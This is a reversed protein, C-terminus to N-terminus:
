AEAAIQVGSGTQFQVMLKSKSGNPLLYIRAMNAAPNGPDAARELFELYNATSGTLRFHNAYMDSFPNSVSGVHGGGSSRDISDVDVIDNDNMDLDGTMANGGSHQLYETHLNGSSAQAHALTITSNAGGDTLTMASGATLVREASLGGTASQVIYTLDTAAGSSGANAVWSLVGSGNTQMVYTNSGDAAPLTYTVSAGDAIASPAQFGVYEDGSGTERLRISSATVHGAIYLQWTTHDGVDALFKSNNSGDTSMQLEYVASLYLQVNPTLVAGTQGLVVKGGQNSFLTVDTYSGGEMVFKGGASADIKIGNKDMVVAGDGATVRGASTMTEVQLPQQNRSTIAYDVGPRWGTWVLNPTWEVDVGGLSIGLDYRENEPQYTRLLKSVIGTYTKGSRADQVQVVDWVEQGCNMPVVDRGTTVNRKLRKIARQARVTAESADAINLDVVVEEFTGIAAASTGDTDSGVAPTSGGPAQNAYTIKNPIIPGESVFGSFFAHDGDYTYDVSSVSDDKHFVHFGDKEPRVVLLSEATVDRIIQITSMGYDANYEPTDDDGQGSTTTDLSMSIDRGVVIKDAKPATTYTDGGTFLLRIYYKSSYLAWDTPLDFTITRIGAIRLHGTNDVVNHSTHLSAWADTSLDRWYDVQITYNGVGATTIDISITDFKSSHGIEFRDGANFTTPALLVDGASGPDGDTPDEAEATYDTNGVGDEVRTAITPPVGGLLEMLIHKVQVDGAYRIRGATENKQWATQFLDWLSMCRLEVILVGEMSFSHQEIVFFPPGESVKMGSSTSFGWGIDLRYGKYDLVNLSKDYDVLQVIASIPYGSPGVDLGGKDEDYWSEISQVFKIKNVADDTKYTRTIGRGRSRFVVEVQPIATSARQATTLDAHLTRM